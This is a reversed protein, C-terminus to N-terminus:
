SRCSIQPRSILLERDIEFRLKRERSRSFKIKRGLQIIYRAPEERREVRSYAARLHRFHNVVSIANDCCRLRPTGRTVICIRSPTAGYDAVCRADFSVRRLNYARTLGRPQRKMRAIITVRSRFPSTRRSYLDEAARM